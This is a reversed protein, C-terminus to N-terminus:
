IAFSRNRTDTYVVHQAVIYESRDDQEFVIKSEGFEVEERFDDREGPDYEALFQAYNIFEMMFAVDDKTYGMIRALAGEYSMDLPHEEYYKEQYALVPNDGEEEFVGMGGLIRMDEVYRQYYKFEGDWRSNDASNVCNEGTAWGLNVTDEAANVLDIVNNLFPLNNLIIGYDSRLANLINADTVGWPSERNACFTIFKALESNDKITTGDSELNASVVREYEPDDPEMDITSYDAAPIPFGYADCMVGKLNTCESYYTTYSVGEDAASATPLIRGVANGLVQTFTFVSQMSSTAAVTPLFGAVISGLFTNKSSADFPSRNNRDIEAEQALAVATNRNQSKLQDESAPMYGSATQAVQFNATAAGQAFLEGAPVGTYTEFIDTFLAKAVMPVVASIVSAVIGTIVIGGVTEALMGVVFKALVGGPISTAALSIIASAAQVGSCTVSTAGGVLVAMTASNTINDLSYAGVEYKTPIIGGLVLKPGAGELASGTVTKTATGNEDTYEVENTTSTTLFNLTENIASADGEGAMMKSVNEIMGMFYNASQFIQNAAVAISVMNAVRLAACVPAGVTSVKNALSNVMTRAKTQPTDGAVNNTKIDEGNKVLSTTDDSPDDPTGGDDTQKGVTNLEGDTGQVKEAITEKFSADDAGADGSAKYDDFINRSIGMKRYFWDSADDFFGAVRGRKAKYYAERFNVDNAYKAQFAEATIIEGNFSLARSKGALFDGTEFIGNSGLRGVEIGNKALRSKMYPTFTTFKQSFATIKIQDGGDMMFKFLRQNRMSYSTFQVDTAETFLSSLHPGLVSQGGFFLAAGGLVLSAIAAMPGKKKLWGGGGRKKAQKANLGRVSNKFGSALPQGMEMARASKAENENLIKGEASKEAEILSSKAINKPRVVAGDMDRYPDDKGMYSKDEGTSVM